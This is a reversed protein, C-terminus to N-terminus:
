QAQEIFARYVAATEAPIEVMPMHGIGEFVHLKANPLNSEWVPGASAHLIQDGSGWMVLSPTQIHQLEDTLWDHGYFSDEIHRLEERRQIYIEGTAAIVSPPLFPPKEMTLSYFLEFEEQNHVFFPNKGKEIMQHMTSLVPFDLGAPDIPAATLTREPYLRAFWATIFGGMSNGTVHVNEIGLKDLLAAVRKAQAPASYDWEPQYGTDGRGALDPIVVRYDEVFHKAFRPWVDKDASFGHIMVIAPKGEPGGVYAEMKLEGIDITQQEFGYFSAEADTANAYIWAGAVPSTWVWYGAVAVVVALIFKKM